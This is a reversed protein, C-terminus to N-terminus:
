ELLGNAAIRCINAKAYQNNLSNKKKSNMPIWDELAPFTLRLSIFTQRAEPFKEAIPNTSTVYFIIWSSYFIESHQGTECIPNVTKIQFWKQKM